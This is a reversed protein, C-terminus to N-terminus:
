LLTAMMQGVRLTNNVCVYSCVYRIGIGGHRINVLATSMHVNLTGSCPYDMCLYLCKGYGDQSQNNSLWAKFLNAFQTHIGSRVRLPM